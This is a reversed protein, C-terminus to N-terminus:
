YGKGWGVERTAKRTSMIEEAEEELMVAMKTSASNRAEHRLAVVQRHWPEERHPCCFFDYPSQSGTMAMIWGRPGNCNRTENMVSKCVGCLVKTGEAVVGPDPSYVSQTDHELQLTEM